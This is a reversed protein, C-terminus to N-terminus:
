EWDNAKAQVVFDRVDREISAEATISTQEHEEGVQDDFLYDRDFLLLIMTTSEGKGSGQAVVLARPRKPDKKPLKDADDKAMDNETLYAVGYKHGSVGVDIHVLAGSTTKVDRGEDPDVKEKHLGKAILEQARRDSVPKTPNPTRPPPAGCGLLSLVLTLACL